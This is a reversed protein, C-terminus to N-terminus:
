IDNMSTHSKPRRGRRKPQEVRNANGESDSGHGKERQDIEDEVQRTYSPMAGSMILLDDRIEHNRKELLLIRRFSNGSHIGCALAFSHTTEVVPCYVREFRPEYQQQKGPYVRWDKPRKIIKEWRTRHKTNLFDDVDMSHKKLHVNFKQENQTYTTSSSSHAAAGRTHWGVLPGWKKIWQFEAEDTCLTASSATGEDSVCGDTAMWGRLFGLLYDLSEGPNAPLDKLNCWARAIYYTPDGNHSQAFSKPYDDLWPTLCHKPWCVRMFYFNKCNPSASGDGYIIGHIVGRRYIAEDKVAKSPRLDDIRTDRLAYGRETFSHTEIRRGSSQEIWEHELTSRISVREFGGFFNLNITNQIGRDYVHCKLWEGNGDLLHIDQEAVEEIPIAGYERTLIMTSGSLCNKIIQTYWAFPNDSRSEDFQLGVQSLQVLAQGRMDAVYSYGRWNGRSSYQQVLLLFMSALRNSMKGHTTCFQGTELDDKWHSRGVEMLIGDSFMYHQFPPFNTKSVWGGTSSRRRNREDSEEPLHSDTMVRFVVDQSTLTPVESGNAGKLLKAQKAQLTAALLEPTLLDASSVITDYRAYEPAVFYCYSTKSKHIEALLDRNNIYKIKQM